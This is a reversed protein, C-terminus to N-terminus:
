KNEKLKGNVDIYLLHLVGCRDYFWWGEDCMQQFSKRVYLNNNEWLVPHLHASFPDTNLVTYMRDEPDKVSCIQKDIFFAQGVTDTHPMIPVIRSEKWKALRDVEEKERRAYEIVLERKWKELQEASEKEAVIRAAERELRRIERLSAGEAIAPALAKFHAARRDRINKRLEKMAEQSGPKISALRITEPDACTLEAKLVRQVDHYLKLKADKVIVNIRSNTLKYKERITVLSVSNRRTDRDVVYHEVIDRTREPLLELADVCLDSLHNDDVDKARIGLAEYCETLPVTELQKMNATTYVDPHETLPDFYYGAEGLVYQIKDLAEVTPHRYRTCIHSILQITLGTRTALDTQSWCLCKLIEKITHPRDILENSM